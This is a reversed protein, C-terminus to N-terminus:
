RKKSTQGKSGGLGGSNAPKKKLKNKNAMM